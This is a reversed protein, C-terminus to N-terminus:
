VKEGNGIRWMLGQELLPKAKLM